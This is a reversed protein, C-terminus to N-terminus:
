FRCLAHQHQELLLIGIVDSNAGPFGTDLVCDDLLRVVQDGM